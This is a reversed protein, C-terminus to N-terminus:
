YLLRNLMKLKALLPIQFLEKEHVGSPNLSINSKYYLNKVDGLDIIFEHDIINM